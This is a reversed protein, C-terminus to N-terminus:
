EGNPIAKFFFHDKGEVPEATDWVFKYKAALKKWAASSKQKDLGAAILENREDVKLYYTKKDQM